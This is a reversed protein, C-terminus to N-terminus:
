NMFKVITDWVTNKEYGLKWFAAGALSNSQMVELKKEISNQDEIWVKYTSGEYEYEAYYQGCDDLWQFTAGNAAVRSEAESMGLAESTVAVGGEVSDDPTLRWLRTYFPVGLILQDAPVNELMDTVGQTVFGLSAVSGEESGNYHEDYAMLVVYDAFVAQEECDYFANYSAPSYNDVSLVLDNGECKLSLERIFQLFGPAAEEDLMEFDVNIGDLNYRVAEAILNNVLTDRSSTTNLVQTTDVDANEFNSVLAWVEVGNEHCYSVYDSSALVAIGGENDNLYFWTPSIVNVGKTGALVSSVQNNATQNTVQHWAMNITYDRSIHSFEPETYEDEYLVSQTGGLASNKVYGVFGDETCIESWSDMEEVVNVLDGREVETLVPSKIGGKERVETTRKVQTYDVTGWENSIVVRNPNQFVEFRINTYQQIFSLSLYMQDEQVHLITNEATQADKGVTYEATEGSVNVIGEPLTYRLIQETGDWFFRDNVYERVVDFPLYVEDDILMGTQELVAHNVCIMIDDESDLHYFSAYDTQEKSPSYKKVVTTLTTILAIVIILVIVGAILFMKQRNGTKRRRGAM